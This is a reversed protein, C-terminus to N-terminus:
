VKNRAKRIDDISNIKNIAKAKEAVKEKVIKYLKEDSKIEEAKILTDVACNIEWEDYECKEDKEEEAPMADITVKVTKGGVPQGYGLNIKSM